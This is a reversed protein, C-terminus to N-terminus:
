QLQLKHVSVTEESNSRRKLSSRSNPPKSKRIHVISLSTPNKEANIADDHDETEAVKEKGPTQDVAVGGGEKRGQMEDCSEEMEQTPPSSKEDFTKGIEM